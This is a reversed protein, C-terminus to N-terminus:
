ASPSSHREFTRVVRDRVAQRLKRDPDEPDLGEADLVADTFADPTGPPSTRLRAQGDPPLCFGLCTCLEDLLRQVVDESLVSGYVYGM